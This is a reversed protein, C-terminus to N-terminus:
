SSGASQELTRRRQNRRQERKRREQERGDDSSSDPTVKETVKETVTELTEKAAATVGGQEQLKPLVRERVLEVGKRTLYASAATVVSAVIPEAARRVMTRGLGGRSSQQPQPQETETAM